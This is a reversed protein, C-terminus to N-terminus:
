SNGGLYKELMQFLKDEEIPKTLYDNCGAEIAKQADGPMAHSSLGIITTHNTAPNNKLRRAAEYGDIKPMSMDMLILDPKEEATKSLAQEGDIAVSLEYDDELLQMLLDVNLEVDDVILIKPM